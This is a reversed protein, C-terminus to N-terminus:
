WCRLQKDTKEIERRLKGGDVCAGDRAVDDRARLTTALASRPADLRSGERQKKRRRLQQADVRYRERPMM